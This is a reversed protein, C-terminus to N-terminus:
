FPADELPPGPQAAVEKEYNIEDGLSVYGTQVKNDTGRINTRRFRLRQMIAGIRRAGMLDRRDIAIGLAEWLAQATVQKRGTSAPQLDEIYRRIDDEWADVERRREQIEGAEAWLEEELRISDGRSEYFCAEAWLQDRDRIIGEVDFRGVRVPWFRRNGTSDALYEGSNTTGVVIFQRWREVPTRAYALRAPGDKQRSLMAKLHDRDAKRSGSMDSAEILMKGLTREIIQKADVNLPLDDSFYEESPCIARLASSKSFGQESELIIMEDYKSGPVRVRRVMATFMIKSIRELYTPGDRSDSGEDIAGGYNRLWYPLRVVGDWKLSDFYIRLPHFANTYTIDYIVREFFQYTPRFRFERDIKLWLSTILQDGLLVPPKNEHNVLMREAFQDFSFKYAMRACARAINEQSDKIIVGQRDRVFDHHEANQKFTPSDGQDWVRRLYADLEDKPIPPKCQDENLKHCGVLAVEKSVGRAKQSRLFKYIIEHRDGSKITPPVQFGETASGSTREAPLIAEFEAIEYRPAVDDIMLRVPRPEPYQKKFNIGSPLRLVRAPESVSEDVVDAVASALRRLLSKAQSMGDGTLRIPHKLLWYPHFGGGSDVMMSPKLPFSALRRLSEERGLHKDDVDVFLATLLHCHAADGKGDKLSAESRLAVGYFAGIKIKITDKIFQEVRAQEYQGEIVAIFARLKNAQPHDFTRLELVGQQGAYLESLFRHLENMLVAM